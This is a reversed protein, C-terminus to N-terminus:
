KRNLIKRTKITGDPQRERIVTLPLGPYYSSLNVIREIPYFTKEVSGIATDEPKEGLRLEMWTWPKDPHADPISETYPTGSRNDVCEIAFALRQGVPPEQLGFDSWPIATEIIYYGSSSSTATRMKLDSPSGYSWRGDAGYYPRMLTGNRRIGFKYCGQQPLEDCTDQMDFYLTIADCDAGNPVQTRDSVRTFFYLSDTDYALDAAVRTGTQTGLIMQTANRKLYGEGNTLKGDIVPHGYPAQLLRVPYGKIMEINGAIGSVAVVIGTDIVALSNWLGEENAGINFPVSVAKFDRAESNGVAVRMQPHGDHNLGSQHSMVTEGWPLVRLYPAGGLAKPAFDLNYTKERNKDTGSVWYDDAWNNDLTTRVTTPYFDTFGAGWGNDEIIVVIESGDKLLVPSPMGDRYYQRFSIRQPETWSLGGDFSRCLSIQQESSNTFPSEDAFYLQLEGSPLQLMSPEWCGDGWLHSADYVLIEDSWTRGNDESRRCRIGFKRDESYPSVPRPNYAVVITGDSLQILDPVCENVGTPNSAIRTPSSWSAGKNSSTAMQIGGSECVAMLSGDQLEIVRSYGGGRFITTRTATDWFIRSGKYPEVRIAKAPLTFVSILTLSILIVKLRIM